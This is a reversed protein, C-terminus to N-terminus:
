NFETYLLDVKAIPTNHLRTMIYTYTNVYILEHFLLSFSLKYFPKFLNYLIRSDFNYFVHM